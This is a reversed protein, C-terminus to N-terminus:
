NALRDQHASAAGRAAEDIPQINRILAELSMRDKKFQAFIPSNLLFAGEQSSSSSFTYLSVGREV